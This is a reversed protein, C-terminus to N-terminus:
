TEPDKEVMVTHCVALTTFFDRLKIGLPSAKMYMEDMILKKASMTMDDCEEIESMDLQDGFVIGDVSCKKFVM